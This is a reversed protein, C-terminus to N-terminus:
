TGAALASVAREVLEPPPPAEQLSTGVYNVIRGHDLIFATPAVTGSAGIDPREEMFVHRKFGARSKNLFVFGFAVDPYQATLQIAEPWNNRCRICQTLESFIVAKPYGPAQGHMAFYSGLNQDTIEQVNPRVSELNALAMEMGLKETLILAMRNAMEIAERENTAQGSISILANGASIGSQVLTASLGSESLQRVLRQNRRAEQPSDERILLGEGARHSHLRVDWGGESKQIRIVDEAEEVATWLLLDVAVPEAIKEAALFPREVFIGVPAPSLRKGATLGLLDFAQTLLADM